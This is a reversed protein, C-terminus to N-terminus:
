DMCPRDTVDMTFLLTFNRMWGTVEDTEGNVNPM